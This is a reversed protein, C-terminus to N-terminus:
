PPLLKCADATSEKAFFDNKDLIKLKSISSHAINSEHYKHFIFCDVFIPNKTM